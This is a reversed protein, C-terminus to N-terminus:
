QKPEGAGSPRTARACVHRAQPLIFKKVEVTVRVPKFDRLIMEALEAALTEILKWSRGRGYDLLRQAVVQYDVTKGLNDGIGTLDLDMEATLTLRQPNAREQAPVGVHFFVILDHIAIQDM